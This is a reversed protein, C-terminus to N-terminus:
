QCGGEDESLLNNQSYTKSTTWKGRSHHPKQQMNIQQNVAGIKTTTNASLIM